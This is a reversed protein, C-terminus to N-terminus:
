RRICARFWWSHHQPRVPAESAASADSRALPLGFDGEEADRREGGLLLTAATASSFSLRGSNLARILFLLIFSKKLFGVQLTVAIKRSSLDHKEEIM